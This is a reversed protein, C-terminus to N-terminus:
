TVTRPEARAPKEVEALLAHSLLLQAAERIVAFPLKARGAIELLGHQGDSLSLVWLMAMQLNPIGTGGIARYVGRKGLQPEGYPALNRFYRDGDLADVVDRLVGLAEALREASVFTLDDGSTHYEPFQGHRGRMLSGVPIRFGPSNFQREDYGYPAFEVLQHGLGSTALVHEVARDVDADGALTRKYTFPQADGLCTLTLGHRVRAAAERNRALWTIAGITGPAFLFRLTLRREKRAALEKALFTAVAIGSLNDDALSPHCVHASILLEDTSSGPLVLEAYSLAGPELTSDICVEYEGPELARLQRETLCFGWDKEYYSTRYPIWDPRDPLTHLKPRLAELSLRARIPTSYNVVHLNHAAFDVVREGSANKIWADRINWEPPVTWDLVATGSPVEHRALPVHRGVIALTERVGNGTISRCIPYLERILKMM